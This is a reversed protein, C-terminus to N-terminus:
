EGGGANVRRGATDRARRAPARRPRQRRHGDGPGAGGPRGARPPPRRPPGGQAPGPVGVSRISAGSISREFDQAQARNFVVGALRAGIASLHGLSREVMPRQQGRSVALIVADAAACVLSAEISGLVPGTDILVVEFHQEAEEILRRLAQPSLTSAHLGSASGVPLISVDNVDTQRVYPLLSRNAIAELV